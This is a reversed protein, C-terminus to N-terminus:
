LFLLLERQSRYFEISPRSTDQENESRMREFTKGIESRNQEWNTVKGRAYKGGPVTWTAFGLAAVDDGAEIAVCARYVGSSPLFTGYFKRGKLTPFPAELTDFAKAAGPIGTTSEVYMVQVDSLP